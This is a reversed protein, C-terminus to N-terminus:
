KDEDLKFGGIIEADTYELGTENMVQVLESLEREIRLFEDMWRERKDISVAPNEMYTAAKVWRQLTDNYMQKVGLTNKDM